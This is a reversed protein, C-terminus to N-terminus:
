FFHEFDVSQYEDPVIDLDPRRWHGTPKARPNEETTPYFIISFRVWQVGPMEPYLYEFREKVFEAIAIKYKPDESPINDYIWRLRDLYGFVLMDSFDEYRTNRWESEEDWDLNIQIDLDRRYVSKHTFLCALRYMENLHNGLQPISNRTWWAYSIPVLWITLFFLFLIAQVFPNNLPNM